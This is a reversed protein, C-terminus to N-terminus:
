NVNNELLEYLGKESFTNYYYNNKDKNFIIIIIIVNYFTLKRELPLSEINSIQM